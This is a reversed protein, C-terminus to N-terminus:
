VVATTAATTSRVGHRLLAWVLLPVIVLSALASAVTVPTSGSFGDPGVLLGAVVGFALSATTAVVLLAVRRAGISAHALMRDAPLGVVLGVVLGGLGAFVTVVLGALVAGALFWGLDLMLTSPSLVGDIMLGAVGVITCGMAVLMPAVVFRNSSKPAVRPPATQAM